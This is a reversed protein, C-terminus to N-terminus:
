RKAANVLPNVSYRAENKTALLEGSLDKASKFPALIPAGSSSEMVETSMRAVKRSAPM